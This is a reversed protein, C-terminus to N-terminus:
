IAHTPLIGLETGQPLRTVMQRGAVDKLALGYGALRFKLERMSLARKREAQILELVPTDVTAISIPAHAM